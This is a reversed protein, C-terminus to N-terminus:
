EQRKENRADGSQVYQRSSYGDIARAHEDHAAYGDFADAPEGETVLRHRPAHNQSDAEISRKTNPAPPVQARRAKLGDPSMSRVPIAMGWVEASASTPATTLAALVKAVYSPKGNGESVLGRRFNGSYYCSLAAALAQTQTPLRTSARAHCEQFIRSGARLNVCPDFATDYDLGLRPLNYRNVQSSGLSFNWGARELARATAVAEAKTRPQRQLAGNVVGISFPHGGSEVMVIAAMVQRDVGTFCEPKLDLTDVIGVGKHSGVPWGLAEEVIWRHSIPTGGHINYKYEDFYRKEIITFIAYRANPVTQPM